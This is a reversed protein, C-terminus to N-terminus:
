FGQCQLFATSPNGAVIFSTRMASPYQTFHLAFLSIVSVDSTVIALPFRASFPFHWLQEVPINLINGFFYNLVVGSCDLAIWTDNLRYQRM